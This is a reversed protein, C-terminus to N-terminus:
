GQILQIFYQLDLRNLNALSSLESSSLNKASIRTSFVQLLLNQQKELHDLQQARQSPNLLSLIEPVASGFNTSPPPIGLLATISSAVNISAYPKRTENQNVNLNSDKKYVILPTKLLEAATGGHGGRDVQGHDSVILLVTSSDLTIYLEKLVSVKSSVAKQYTNKLNYKQSVGSLHGQEDIDSFHALFLDPVASFNTVRSNKLIQNRYTDASQDSMQLFNFYGQVNILSKEADGDLSLKVPKELLSAWWPSGTLGATKNFRECARFITDFHTGQLGLNGIIGSVVPPVGSVLGLWNPVSMSPLQTFMEM